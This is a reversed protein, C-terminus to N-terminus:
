RPGRAVIAQVREGHPIRDIRRRAGERLRLGGAREAVVSEFLTRGRLVERQVGLAVVLVGSLRALQELLKGGGVVCVTQRRARLGRRAAVPTQEVADRLGLPLPFLAM